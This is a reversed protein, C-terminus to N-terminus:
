GREGVSRPRVGAFAEAWESPLSQLRTVSDAAWAVACRMAADIDAESLLGHILGAAFADGAGTADLQTVTPAAVYTHGTPGYADAGRSGRTVIVWQLRHGAVASISPFPRALVSDDFQAESGVVLDAPWSAAGRLPPSTVLLASGSSRAIDTPYRAYSEVYVCDASSVDPGPEPNFQQNESGDDLGIIAREGTTDLIILTRASPGAVRFVFSTDV